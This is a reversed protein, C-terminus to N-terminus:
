PGLANAIETIIRKASLDATSIPVAGIVKKPNNRHDIILLVPLQKDQFSPKLSAVLSDTSNRVYWAGGGKSLATTIANQGKALANVEASAVAPDVVLIASIGTVNAPLDRDGSPPSTPPINPQNAPPTAPSASGAKRKVTTIAPDTMKGNAFLAVVVITIEDGPAPSRLLIASNAKSVFPSTLYSFSPATKLGLVAWKMDKLTAIDSIDPQIIIADQTTDIEVPLKVTQGHSLSPLFLLLSLVLRIM